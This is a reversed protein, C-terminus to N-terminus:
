WKIFHYSGATANTLPSSLKLFFSGRPVQGVNISQQDPMVVTSYILNGARDFVQAFLKSSNTKNYFYIVDKVPNPGIFIKNTTKTNIAKVSSFNKTGSASLQVVRYYNVGERMEDQLYTYRKVGGITANEEPIFAIVQWHEADTSFEVNYGTINGPEITNWSLRASNNQPVASLNIQSAALV